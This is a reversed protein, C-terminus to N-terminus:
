FDVAWASSVGPSLELSLTSSPISSRTDQFHEALGHPFYYGSDSIRCSTLEANLNKQLSFRYQFRYIYINHVRCEQLIPTIPCFIEQCLSLFISFKTQLMKLFLPLISILFYICLLCLITFNKITVAKNM